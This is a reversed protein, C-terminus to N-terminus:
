FCPKVGSTGFELLESTMKGNDTISKVMGNVPVKEHFWSKSRFKMGM